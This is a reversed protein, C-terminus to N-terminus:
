DISRVLVRLGSKSGSSGWYLTYNLCFTPNKINVFYVFM